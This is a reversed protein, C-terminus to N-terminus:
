NLNITQTVLKENVEFVCAEYDPPGFTGPANNSFAYDETPIGVFNKDLQDNGNEDHYISFTYSGKPVNEFVLEIAETNDVLADEFMFSSKMYSEKSNYLGIKVRGSAIDFKKVTVKITSGDQAQVQNLSLLTIAIAILHKM